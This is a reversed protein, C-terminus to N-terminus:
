LLCLAVLMKAYNSRREITLPPSLAFSCLQVRASASHSSHRRLMIVFCVCLMSVKGYSGKGLLKIPTYTENFGITRASLAGSGTDLSLAEFPGMFLSPMAAAGASSSLADKGSLVEQSAHGNPLVSDKGKSDLNAEHAATHSSSCGM